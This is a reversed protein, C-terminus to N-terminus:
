RAQPFRDIRGLRRLESQLADLLAIERNVDSFRGVRAEAGTVGRSASGVVLLSAPQDTDTRLTYLVGLSWRDAGTIVMGVHAAAGTVADQLDVWRGLVSIPTDPQLMSSPEAPPAIRFDRQPTSCGGLFLAASFVLCNVFMIERAHTPEVPCPGNDDVPTTPPKM